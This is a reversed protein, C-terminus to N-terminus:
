MPYTVTSIAKCDKTYVVLITHSPHAKGRADTVILYIDYRYIEGFESNRSVKESALTASLPVAITSRIEDRCHLEAVASDNLRRESADITPAPLRMSNDASITAQATGMLLLASIPFVIPAKM